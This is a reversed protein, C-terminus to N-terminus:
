GRAWPADGDTEERLRFGRLVLYGRCILCGQRNQNRSSSVCCPGFSGEDERRYEAGTDYKGGEKYDHDTERREQRRLAWMSLFSCFQFKAVTLTGPFITGLGNNFKFVEHEPAPSDPSTFLRSFPCPQWWLCYASGDCTM